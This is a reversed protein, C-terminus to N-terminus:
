IMEKKHMMHTMLIAAMALLGIWGLIMFILGAYRFFAVDVRLMNRLMYGFGVIILMSVIGLIVIPMGVGEAWKRLDQERVM